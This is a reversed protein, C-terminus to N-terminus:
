RSKRKKKNTMLLAVLGVISVLMLAAWASIMSADGTEPNGPDGPALPTPDDPIEVVPPDEPPDYPGLPPPEDPIEMDPITQNRVSVSVTLNTNGQPMQLGVADSATFGAGSVNYGLVTFADSAEEMIYYTKGHSLGRITVSGSNSYLIVRDILNMAEDYVRVAFPKGSEGISGDPNTLSKNLVLSVASDSPTTPPTYVNHFNLEPAGTELAATLKGDLGRTVVVTVDYSRTDTTWGNGGKSTERVTYKYTGADSYGIPEFTIDGQADHTGRSVVMDTGFAFVAFNFEGAILSRGEATKRGTLVISAMYETNVGTVMAVKDEEASLTVTGGSVTFASKTASDWDFTFKANAPIVERIRYDGPELEELTTKGVYRGEADSWSVTVPVAANVISWSSDANKKEVRFTFSYTLAKEEDTLDTRGIDYYKGIVITALGETVPETNVGTVKVTDKEALDFTLTGNSNLGTGYATKTASDWDFKYSANEPIVESVRYKGPELGPLNTVGVYEGESESWNVRVVINSSVTSWAGTNKDQHELKFTFDYTMAKEEDTLDTRGIDYHKGIVVLGTLLEPTFPRLTNTGTVLAVSDDDSYKYAAVIIGEDTAVIYDQALTDQDWTFVYPANDEVDESVRYEGVSMDAGELTVEGYFANKTENWPVMVEVRAAGTPDAKGYKDVVIWQPDAQSGMNREVKFNFNYTANKEGESITRRLNYTKGIILKTTGEEPFLPVDALNLGTVMARENEATFEIVLMGTDPDYNYTNLTDDDWMFTFGPDAAAVESLRYTGPVLREFMETGIFMEDDASWAVEIEVDGVTDWGDPTLANAKELLFTFNYTANTDLETLVTRDPDYYKGIEISSGLSVKAPDHDDEDEGDDNKGDEDIVNDDGDDYGDNSDDDDPTSDIDEVPTGDEDTIGAIEAFNILNTGTATDSVKVVLKIDASAAGNYRNDTPDGLTAAPLEIGAGDAGIYKLKGGEIEWGDNVGGSVAEVFEYGAPLYDVIETLTIAQNGQNYVRITFEVYDGAKVAPVDTNPAVSIYHNKELSGDQTYSDVSSVWKILAADYVTYKNAFAAGGAATEWSSDSTDYKEFVPTGATLTGSQDTVTVSVLYISDDTTWGNGGNAAAETTLAKEAIIFYYTGTEDFDLDEFQMTCTDGADTATNKITDSATLGTLASRTTIARASTEATAGKGINYLEFSFQDATMDANATKTIDIDFTTSDPAYSNTFSIGTPAPSVGAKAYTVNAALIELANTGDTTQTVTITVTVPNEDYTYGTPVPNPIVESVTFTFTGAKTFTINGFAFAGTVAAASVTTTAPLTAGAPNGAAATLTFSFQGAAIAAGTLTKTGSLAKTVPTPKDPPSKANTIVLYDSVDDDIVGVRANDGNLNTIKIVENDYTLKFTIEGGLTYDDPPETEVIKFIDTGSVFPTLLPTTAEGDSDTTFTGLSVGNRYVEFEAGELFELADNEDQKIIKLAGTTMSAGAVAWTAWSSATAANSGNATATNSYRYENGNVIVPPATNYSVVIAYGDDEAPLTSGTEGPTWANVADSDLVITFGTAASNVSISQIYEEPVPEMFTDAITKYQSTFADPQLDIYYDTMFWRLVGDMFTHDYPTGPPVSCDTGGRENVYYNYVERMNFRYIKFFADDAASSSMSKGFIGNSENVKFIDNTMIADYGYFIHKSLPTLLHEQQSGAFSDTLTIASGSVKYGAENLVLSWRIKGISESYSSNKRLFVPDKRPANGPVYPEGEEVTVVLPGGTYTVTWVTERGEEENIYTFGVAGYGNINMGDLTKDFMFRITFSEVNGEDDEVVDRVQLYGADNVSGCDFWQKLGAFASSFIYSANSIDVVVDFYDESEIVTGNPVSWQIYIQCSSETEVDGGIVTGDTIDTWTSENPKKYQLKVTLNFDSELARLITGSEADCAECIHSCNYYGEQVIVDGGCNDTTDHDCAVTEIDNEEDGAVFACPDVGCIHACSPETVPEVYECEDNYEREGLVHCTHVPAPDTGGPGEALAHMPLLGFVMVMALVMCLM